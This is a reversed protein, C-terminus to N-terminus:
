PILTYGVSQLAEDEADLGFYAALIDRAVPATYSGWVGKEIVVAVAIQPDHAPAYCMFLANSSSKSEAGTEATGTKGAVKVPFDRFHQEVTGEVSSAVRQMGDMVIDLYERNINLQVYEPEAKYVTNNNCDIVEKIIHPTMKKGGNAITAAYNALQLPTFSNYLQGISTQATDAIWWDEGKVRFKYERNSRQGPNEGPLEIGSLEGLGFEKAWKDINSIGTEVGLKHFYLNCSTAIARELSLNGHIGMGQVYELCYFEMGGINSHGDCLITKEPTLFGEQLAAIGVLPKFTSGPAYTAQLARNYLPKGENDFILELRKEQAEHTNEIFCSPDYSPYSAMVLIEGTKVDIAVAAGCNADGFNGQNINKRAVISNITKELSNMAVSQLKMDITLIVDNGPIAPEGELETMIRGQQDVEMKRLGNKGRLYKEAALEIGTKGIIDDYAYDPNKSLENLDILGIYGLVHAANVANVYVRQPNVNTILGPMLHSKEEVQALTKESINHAIKIPEGVYFRWGNTIIEYRITMIAYIQKQSLTNDINFYQDRLYIYFAEPDYIVNEKKINFTNVNAQWGEIQEKTMDKFSFPNITFYKSLNNIYNDGNETLITYLELLASNMGYDNLGAKQIYLDYNQTNVALPQGTRDLIMGRYANIPIDKYIKTASINRQAQGHIIQMDYLRVFFAFIILIFIINIIILRRQYTQIKM